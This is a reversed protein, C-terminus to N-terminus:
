TTRDPTTGTHPQPPECVSSVSDDTHSVNRTPPTAADPTPPLADALAAVLGPGDQTAAVAAIRLGFGSAAAASPEGFAVVATTAPPEGLLAHVAATVSGATVIVADYDGRQWAESVEAPVRDAPVTTYIPIAMVTWGKARLAEALEPSSLASGPILVRGTGSPFARALAAASASGEPSLAVRVGHEELARRTAAGVAAVGSRGLSQLPYGGEALVRVATPSTFVVWHADRPLRPFVVPVTRTLPVCDVQAGAARLADALPGDASPLLVRRGVLRTGPAWPAQDDHFDTLRSARGDGLPTVDAAGAALLSRAMRRGFEDADIPTYVASGLGVARRGDPSIVKANLRHGIGERVCLAGIPAACGAGLEALVAREATAAFRTDPDDLATLAALTAADDARCEVALAGQAPAPLMQYLVETIADALGLRRLEAVALVVADLDAEPGLVRALRTPVDGRIDVLTLDPRLVRLQGSRLPSGTGVRAGPPLRRLTVGPTACLADHPDQRPPVAAVVLGPTPATPLDTFSHVALDVEGALLAERLAATGDARVLSGGDDDGETRITRLEVAHGLARLADAIPRSETLALESGRTGLVLRM